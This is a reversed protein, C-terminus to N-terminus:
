LDILQLARLIDLLESRRVSTNPNQDIARLRVKADASAQNRDTIKQQELTADHADLEEQVALRDAVTFEGSLRRAVLSAGLDRLGELEPVRRTIAITLQSLEVAKAKQIQM